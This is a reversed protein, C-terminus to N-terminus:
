FPSAARITQSIKNPAVGLVFLSCSFNQSFMCIIVLKGAAYCGRLLFLSLSVTEVPELSGEYLRGLQVVGGRSSQRLQCAPLWLIVLPMSVVVGKDHHVDRGFVHHIMMHKSEDLTPAVLKVDQLAAAYTTVFLVLADLVEFEKLLEAALAVFIQIDIIHYSDRDHYALSWLVYIGCVTIRQDFFYAAQASVGKSIEHGPTCWVPRGRYIVPQTRWGYWAGLVRM